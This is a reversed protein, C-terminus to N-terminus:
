PLSCMSPLPPSLPTGQHPPSFLPASSQFSFKAKLRFWGEGPARGTKSNQQVLPNPQPRSNSGQSPPCPPPSWTKCVHVCVCKGAFAALIGMAVSLCAARKKNCAMKLARPPLLPLTPPDVLSAHPPSFPPPITRCQLGLRAGEGGALSPLTCDGFLLWIRQMALLTCCLCFPSLPPLRATSLADGSMLNCSSNGIRAKPHGQM